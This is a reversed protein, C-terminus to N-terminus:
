VLKLRKRGSSETAATVAAPKGDNLHEFIKEQKFVGIELGWKKEIFIARIYGDSAVFGHTSPCFEGRAVVNNTHLYEWLKYMASLNTKVAIDRDFDKKMGNNSPSLEYYKDIVYRDTYDQVPHYQEVHFVKTQTIENVEEGEYYFKLESKAYINGDEDVWQRQTSGETLVTGQYTSRNKVIKGNPAKAEIDPREYTNLNQYKANFTAGSKPDVIQVSYAM